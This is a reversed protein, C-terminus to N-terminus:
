VIGRPKTPLLVEMRTGGGPSSELTHKGELIRVREAINSLGLGRARPNGQKHNSVDFGKGNDSVVLRITDGEQDLTIRAESAGSHKVINSLAEQVIRYLNIAKGADLEVQSRPLSTTVKVPSRQSVKDAISEIARGLGLQDLVHPHLDFSVERVGELSEQAISALESLGRNLEMSVGPMSAQQEIGVKLILLNQGLSDHLEAAIRKREAEQSELLKHSFQQQVRARDKLVVFRWRIVGGIILGVAVLATLQFWWTRWYPPTITFDLTATRTSTLGHANIARVEFRYQGPHLAAYTVTKKDTPSHWAREVDHLRYQYRIAKEDVFSIGTFEFTCTNQDYSLQHADDINLRVGDIDFQTIHIPPSSQSSAPSRLDFLNLNIGSGMWLMRSDSVGTAYVAQGRFEAVVPSFTLTNLNMSQLGLATGVWLTSDQDCALSWIANSLLGDQLTFVRLVKNHYLVLGGYRTGMWMRSRSDQIVARAGGEPIGQPNVLSLPGNPSEGPHIVAISGHFGALWIRGDHDEYLVRVSNDMLGDSTSYTRILTPTGSLDIVVVGVGQVSCWLRDKSDVLLCLRGGDPLCSNLVAPTRDVLRSPGDRSHEIRYSHIRGSQSTLWLQGHTDFTVAQATVISRESMVRHSHTRWEGAATMWLESLGDEAAIWFHGSSDVAVASNNYVHGARVPFVVLNRTTWRTLGSTALWLNQEHDFLGARIHNSSLGHDASYRIWPATLVQAKPITFLGDRTCLWLNQRGDELIQETIGGDIQRAELVASDRFHLLLGGRTALWLDGQKDAYMECIGRRTQLSLDIQRRESTRLNYSYLWKGSGIWLLSDRSLAVESSQSTFMLHSVEGRLAYVGAETGCWLTGAADEVISGVRNASLGSDVRITTFRATPIGPTLQMKSIGGGHTGIWFTGPERRSETICNVYNLALGDLPTYNIFSRGDYVSLGENTGAWLYGRSDQYLTNVGNSLLGENQTYTRLALIQARAPFGVAITLLVVFLKLTLRPRDPLIVLACVRRRIPPPHVPHNRCVEFTHADHRNLGDIRFLGYSIRLLNQVIWEVIAANRNCSLYCSSPLIALPPAGPASGPM